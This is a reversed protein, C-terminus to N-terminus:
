PTATERAVERMKRIAETARTWDGVSTRAWDGKEGYGPDFEMGIDGNGSTDHSLTVKSGGNSEICIEV